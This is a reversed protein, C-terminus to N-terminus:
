RAIGSSIHLMLTLGLACVSTVSSLEPLKQALQAHYRYEVHVIPVQPILYDMSYDMNYHMFHASIHVSM